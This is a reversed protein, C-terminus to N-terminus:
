RWNEVAYKLMVVNWSLLIPVVIAPGLVMPYEFVLKFSTDSRYLRTPRMGFQVILIGIPVILLLGIANWFALLHWAKESSMIQDWKRVLVMASLGFLMDPFATGWAFATPFLGMRWKVLSGVALTRIGQLAVVQKLSSELILSVTKWKWCFVMTQLLISFLPLWIMPFSQLVHEQTFWDYRRGIRIVLVSWLGQLLPVFLLSARHEAMINSSNSTIWMSTFTLEIGILLPLFSWKQPAKKTEEGNTKTRLLPKEENM